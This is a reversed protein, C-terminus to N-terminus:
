NIMFWVDLWSEDKCHMYLSANPTTESSYKLLKNQLYKYVKKEPASDRKSHDDYQTSRLKSQPLHQWFRNNTKDHPNPTWIQKAVSMGDFSSIDTFLSSIKNMKPINGGKSKKSVWKSKLILSVFLGPVWKSKRGSPCFTSRKANRKLLSLFGMM